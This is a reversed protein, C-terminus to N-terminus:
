PPRHVLIAWAARSKAEQAERALRASQLEEARRREWKDPNERREAWNKEWREYAAREQPTIQCARDSTMRQPPSNEGNDPPSKAM